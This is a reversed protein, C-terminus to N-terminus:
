ADYYDDPRALIKGLLLKAVLVMACCTLFGYWAHFAFRGDVGFHPHHHVFLDAVVTGLLMAAFIMWTRKSLRVPPKRDSM